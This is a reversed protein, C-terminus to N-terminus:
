GARVERRPIMTMAMTMLGVTSVRTAAVRRSAASAAPNPALRSM